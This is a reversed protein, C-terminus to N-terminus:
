ETNPESKNFLNSIGLTLRAPGRRYSAALDALFVSQTNRLGAAQQAADYEDTAAAYTGQLQLKWQPAPRYEGYLTARPPSLTNHRLAGADRRAGHIRGEPLHGGDGPALEPEGALRRDSGRWPDETRTALSHAPVPAPRRVHSGGPPQRGQGLALSVRRRHFRRTRCPRARGSRGSGVQRWRPQDPVPEQRWAGGPRVRQDRCGQSFSAFAQLDDAIDYVAGANFLTLSFGPPLRWQGSLDAVSGTQAQRARCCHTLRFPRESLKRLPMSACKACPPRAPSPLRGPGHSSASPRPRLPWACDRGGPFGRM